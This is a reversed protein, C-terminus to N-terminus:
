GVWTVRERHFQFHFTGALDNAFCHMRGVRGVPAKNVGWACVAKVESSLESVTYTFSPLYDQNDDDDDNTCM